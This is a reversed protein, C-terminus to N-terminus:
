ELRILQKAPWFLWIGSMVVKLGVVMWLAKGITGDRTLLGGIGAGALLLVISAARRNRKTNDLVLLKPDMAIDCYSSTLVVTPVENYGLM